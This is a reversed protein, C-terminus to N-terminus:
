WIWQNLSLHHQNKIRRLDVIKPQVTFAYGVTLPPTPSPNKYGAQVNIVTVTGM